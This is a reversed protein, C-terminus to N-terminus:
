KITLEEGTLFFANQLTHVYDVKLTTHFVVNGLDKFGIYFAAPIPKNSLDIYSEYVVCLRDKIWIKRNGQQKFGFKLLWEETLPIPEFPTTYKLLQLFLETDLVRESNCYNVLNGIRVESAKM